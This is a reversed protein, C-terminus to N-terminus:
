VEAQTAVFIFVYCFYYVNNHPYTKTKCDAECTNSVGQFRYILSSSDRHSLENIKKATSIHQVLSLGLSFVASTLSQCDKRGQIQLLLAASPFHWGRMMGSPGAQIFLKEVKVWTLFFFTFFLRVRKGQFRKLYSARCWLMHYSASVSSAIVHQSVESIFLNKKHCFAWPFSIIWGLLETRARAWFFSSIPSLPNMQSPLPAPPNTPQASNVATLQPLCCPKLFADNNGNHKIIQIVDWHM